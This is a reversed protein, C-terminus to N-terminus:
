ADKFGGPELQHDVDFSGYRIAGIDLNSLQWASRQQAHNPDSSMLKEM